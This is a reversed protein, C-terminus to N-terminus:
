RRDLVRFGIAEAIHAQEIVDKAQMDAITRALKLIRHYARASLNLQDCVKALFAQIDQDIACLEEIQTNNLLSNLCGQRVMQKERCQNVRDRIQQSSENNASHSQLERTSLRSLRLHIDIRDILPGSLKNQYAEIKGAACQCRDTGDGLYGCPCPNCAAVVNFQAPFSVTRNARAIHIVGSEIPERLQELTARNFETLEDLFLTGHNAMSIEGPKPNSGGGVLAVASSSHHPSRYPRKRWSAIDFGSNSISQIAATELAQDENLDPLISNFRSALMSKGTGPPGVMIVSHNGSAAIEMGRKAQIQGKVQCMDSTTSQEIELKIDPPEIGLLQEQGFLYKALQLLHNIPKASIQDVLTAEQANCEPLFLSHSENRCAIASPLVGDVSRVQGDLALEGIFEYRDIEKAELQGSALLIGVAIPLDFRGGHKPLDAPALNVTIRKAPFEFGSNIIASRVRDKSERVASEPLGVTTFAPLGNALHVEVAVPLAHIGVIARSQVSAYALAM